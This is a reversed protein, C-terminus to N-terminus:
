VTVLLRGGVRLANLKEQVGPVSGDLRHDGFVLGLVLLLQHHPFGDGDLNRRGFGGAIVRATNEGLRMEM